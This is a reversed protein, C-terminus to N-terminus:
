DIGEEITMSLILGVYVCCKGGDWGGHVYVKNGSSAFGHMRRPSPPIGAVAVSLTWVLSIPNFVYQDNLFGSDVSLLAM